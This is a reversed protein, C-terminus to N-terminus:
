KEFRESYGYWSIGYKRLIYDIIRTTIFSVLNPKQVAKYVRHFTQSIESGFPYNAHSVVEVRSSGIKVFEDLWQILQEPSTVSYNGELQSLSYTEKVLGLRLITM